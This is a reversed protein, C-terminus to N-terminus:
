PAVAWYRAATDTDVKRWRNAASADLGLEARVVDEAVEALRYAGYSRRLGNPIHAVGADVCATRLLNAVKKHMVVLGNRRQFPTLIAMLNPRIPVVRARSAVPPALNIVRKTFDFQKWELATAEAPQLGAFAGLTVYLLVSLTEPEERSNWLVSVLRQLVEPAYIAEGEISDTM